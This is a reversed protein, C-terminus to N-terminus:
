FILTSLIRFKLKSSQGEDLSSWSWSATPYFASAKRTESHLATTLVRRGVEQDGGLERLGDGGHDGFPHLVQHVGSGGVYADGVVGRHKQHVLPLM